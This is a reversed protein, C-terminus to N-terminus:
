VVPKVSATLSALSEAVVGSRLPRISVTCLTCCQCRAVSSLFLLMDGIVSESTAGNIPNCPPDPV